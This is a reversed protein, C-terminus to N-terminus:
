FTPLSFNGSSYMSFCLVPRHFAEKPESQNSSHLKSASSLRCQACRKPLDVAFMLWAEERQLLLNRLCCGTDKVEVFIGEDFFLSFHRVYAREFM